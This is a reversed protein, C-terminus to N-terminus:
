DVKAGSDKVVKTWKAIEQKIFEAFQANTNGVPEAGMAILQERVAPSKVAKIVETSIRNALEPPMNAPLVIGFWSSAEYSPLNAAEAITPLEPFSPTRKASTVAIAKLRGARIFNISSPLNDFMIDTNGAILDTLAPNSGKYPLHLMYTKTLSKFLEGSMHISTGSGSSAMNVKGPNAKAYAILESINKVPLQNNVVLVNEVNVLIDVGAFDREPDYPVKKMLSPLIEIPGVTGLLLTYGDNPARAVETAAILGGGGSKNDVVITQKWAEGLKQALIRALIDTAGGPAFPSIIKVPKNPYSTAADQANAVLSTSSILCTLAFLIQLPNM